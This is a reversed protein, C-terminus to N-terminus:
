RIPETMCLSNLQGSVVVQGNTRLYGYQQALGRQRQVADMVDPRQALVAQGLAQTWAPDRAMQDLVSPFPLLGLISPDWPLMDEQVARGLADGNL